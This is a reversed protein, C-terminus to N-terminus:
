NDAPKLIWPIHIDPIQDEMSVSTQSYKCNAKMKAHKKMDSGTVHIQKIIQQMM